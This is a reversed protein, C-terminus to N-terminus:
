RQSVSPWPPWREDLFYDLCVRFYVVGLVWEKGLDPLILSVFANTMLLGFIRFSEGYPSPQTARSSVFFISASLANNIFIWSASSVRRWFSLCYRALHKLANGSWSSTSIPTSHATTRTLSSSRTRDMGVPSTTWM